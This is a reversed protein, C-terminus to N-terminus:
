RRPVPDWQRLPKRIRKKVPRMRATLRVRKTRRRKWRREARRLRGIRRRLHSALRQRWLEIVELPISAPVFATLSGGSMRIVGEGHEVFISAKMKM